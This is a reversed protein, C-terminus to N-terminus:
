YGLAALQQNIFNVTDNCAEGECAAVANALLRDSLEDKYRLAAATDCQQGSTKCAKDAKYLSVREQYSLYNNTVENFAAGAGTSGGVAAGTATSALATRTDALAGDIGATYLADAVVPASLTGTAAGAAGAVGGSLGGVATHALLRMTGQDGWDVDGTRADKDGAIGSIGSRTISSAHGKDDGWGVGSPRSVEQVPQGDPLPLRM